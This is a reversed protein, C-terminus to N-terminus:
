RLPYLISRNKSVGDKLWKGGAWFVADYIAVDTWSDATWAVDGKLGPFYWLYRSHEPNLDVPTGYRVGHYLGKFVLNGHMAGGCGFRFGEWWTLDGKGIGYLLSGVGIAAGFSQAVDAMHWYNRVNIKNADGGWTSADAIGKGAGAMVFGLSSLSLVVSRRVAPKHNEIPVSAVVGTFQPTMLPTMVLLAVGISM